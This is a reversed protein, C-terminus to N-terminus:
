TAGFYVKLLLLSVLRNQAAPIIPSTAGHDHGMVPPRAGWDEENDDEEYRQDGRCCRKIITYRSFIVRYQDDGTLAMPRM